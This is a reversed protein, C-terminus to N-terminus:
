PSVEGMEEILADADQLLITWDGTDTGHDELASCADRLASVLGKLTEITRAQTRM